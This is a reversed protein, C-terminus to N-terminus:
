FWPIWYVGPSYDLGDQLTLGSSKGKSHDLNVAYLVQKRLKRQSFFYNPSRIPASVGTRLLKLAAAADVGSSM